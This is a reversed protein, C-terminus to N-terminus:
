GKDWNERSTIQMPTFNPQMGELLPNLIKRFGSDVMLMFSRGNITVLALCANQLTKKNMKVRITKSFM